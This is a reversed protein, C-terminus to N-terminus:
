LLTVCICQLLIVIYIISYIVTNLGMILQGQPPLPPYPTDTPVAILINFYGATGCMIFFFNLIKALFGCLECKKKPWGVGNSSSDLSDM